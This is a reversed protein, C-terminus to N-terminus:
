RECSMPPRDDDCVQLSQLHFMSQRSDDTHTVHGGSGLRVSEAGGGTVQVPRSSAGDRHCNADDQAQRGTATATATARIDPWRRRWRRGGRRRRNRHHPLDQGDFAAFRDPGDGQPTARSQVIRPRDAAGADFDTDAAVLRAGHNEVVIATADFSVGPGHPEPAQAGPNLVAAHAAEDGRRADADLVGVVQPAGPDPVEVAGRDPAALGGDAQQTAPSDRIARTGRDLCGSRSGTVAARSPAAADVHTRTAHQGM